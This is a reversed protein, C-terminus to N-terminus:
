APSRFHSRSCWLSLITALFLFPIWHATYQFAISITPWYTTTMLTFFCNPILLLVFAVKRLPLFTLPVVMHLGYALKNERIFTTLAYIPNSFLTTIM